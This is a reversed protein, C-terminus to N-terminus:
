FVIVLTSKLMMFMMSVFYDDSRVQRFFIGWMLLKYM